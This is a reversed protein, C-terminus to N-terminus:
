FARIADREASPRVHPKLTERNAVDVRAGLLGRVYEVIGAYDFVTLRAAPDLDLMVDIDSDARGDGRAASGFLAAHEVGRGKLEAEHAKLVQIIQSRDM